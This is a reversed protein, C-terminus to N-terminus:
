CQEGVARRSTVSVPRSTHAYSRGQGKITWLVRVEVPNEGQKFDDFSMVNVCKIGVRLVLGTLELQTKSAVSM